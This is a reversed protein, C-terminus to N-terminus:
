LVSESLHDLYILYGGVCYVTFVIKMIRSKFLVINFVKFKGMWKHSMASLYSNPDFQGHM